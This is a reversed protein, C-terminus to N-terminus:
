SGPARRRYERLWSILCALARARHSIRNKAAADAQAFTVGLDDSLFLPDYGFGKEGRSEELIVGATEGHFLLTEGGPQALAIACVFKARREDGRMGALRELLCRNNAADDADPGAYRASLIGPEGDLAPVVLGSDDALAALGTLELAAKAKIIANAEFTDGNEDPPIADPFDALSTMEIGLPQMIERLECVKKANHSALVMREFM